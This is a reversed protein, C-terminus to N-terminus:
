KIPTATSDQHCKGGAPDWTRGTVDLFASRYEGKGLTLKLVGFYGQVRAASTARPNNRFGRLDGGGTGVVYEVMGHTSDIVGLSNQPLFREYDHDHGNLVVDVGGAQLIEWIPRAAPTDGHWGSSFLPQHWYALTCLTQAKKLEARLWDEQAKREAASFSSNVMVEGNLSIMHWAGVDYSYYGKDPSGAKSGFYQYYPSAGVSLHEHNGPSPHIKKMIGKASDGWSPTFCLAFNSASGSPYANDGLSFVETPVKAVSDAKLVSDILMATQEDGDTGCVAIDGAGIFVSAGTLAVQAATATAPAPTIQVPIKCAFIVAPVILVLPLLRPKM